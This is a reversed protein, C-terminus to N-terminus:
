KVIIKQTKGGEVKICIEGKEPNAIEIGQLNFYRADVGDAAIGGVGNEEPDSPEAPDDEDPENSPEYGDKTISRLVMPGMLVASAPNATELWVLAQYPQVPITGKNKYFKTDIFTWYMEDWEPSYLVPMQYVTRTTSAAVATPDESFYVKGTQPDYNVKIDAIRIGHTTGKDDVYSEWTFYVTKESENYKARFREITTKGFYTDSDYSRFEFHWLGEIEDIPDETQSPDEGLNGTPLGDVTFDFIVTNDYRQSKDLSVHKPYPLDNTFIAWPKLSLACQTDSINILKGYITYDQTYLDCYMYRNTMYVEGDEYSFNQVFAVVNADSSVEGTAADVNFGLSSGTDNFNEVTLRGNSYSGTVQYTVETGKDNVASFTGNGSQASATLGACLLGTLLLSKKM